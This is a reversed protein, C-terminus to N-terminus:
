VRELYWKIKGRIFDGTQKAGGTIDPLTRLDIFNIL